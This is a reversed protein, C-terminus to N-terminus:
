TATAKFTVSFVSGVASATVQQRGPNPGLTWIVQAQGPQQGIAGTNVTSNSVSGATPQFQVLVGNVPQGKIDLLEVVLPQLNNGAKASQDDGSVYRLFLGQGLQSVSESLSLILQYLLPNDYVLLRSATPDVTLITNNPGLTIRALSVSPDTPPAACGTSIRASLLGQLAGNPPLPFAGLTNPPTAPSALDAQRVLLHFTERVTSCACKGPHECDLVLMPVPDALAEAYVLCIEVVGQQANGSPNGNDDTLQLPNISVPDPGPVVIERGLGDLAIGPQVLIMNPNQADPAVNLGCIVGTGVVLRNLMWRKQNFYLTEKKLRVEDLLLGYVYNTREPAALVSGSGNTPGPM